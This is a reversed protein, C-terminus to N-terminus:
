FEVTSCCISFIKSNRNAKTVSGKKKKSRRFWHHNWQEPKLNWVAASETNHTVNWTYSDKTTFRNFTKRKHSGFMNKFSKKVIGTDGNIAWTNMCKMNWM